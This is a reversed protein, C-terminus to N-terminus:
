SFFHEVRLQSLDTQKPKKQPATKTSSKSGTSTKTRAALLNQRSNATSASFTLTTQSSRQVKALKKLDPEPEIAKRKRTAQTGEESVGKVSINEVSSIGVVSEIALTSNGFVRKASSSRTVIDISSTRESARDSTPMSKAPTSSKEMISGDSTTKAISEKPFGGEEKKPDVHNTTTNRLNSLEVTARKKQQRTAYNLRRRANKEQKVQNRQEPTMAALRKERSQKARAYKAKEYKKRVQEKQERQEPTMAGLKKEVSQKEKAYRARGHEKREEVSLKALKDMKNRYSRQHKEWKWHRMKEIRATREEPDLKALIKEENAVRRAYEEKWWAKLEEPTKNREIAQHDRAWKNKYYADREEPTMARLREATKTNKMKYFAQVGIESKKKDTTRKDIAARRRADEAWDEKTWDKTQIARWAAWHSNFELQALDEDIIYKSKIPDFKIKDVAPTAAQWGELFSTRSCAGLFDKETFPSLSNWEPNYDIKYSGLWAQLMAEAFQSILVHYHIQDLSTFRAQDTPMRFLTHFAVEPFQGDTAQM